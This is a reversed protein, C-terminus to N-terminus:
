VILKMKENIMERPYFVLPRFVPLPIKEDAKKFNQLKTDAKVLAQVAMDKKEILEQLDELETFRFRRWNNWKRLKNITSVIKKSKRKVVPFFNCGRKMILWAALPELSKGEFLVAVNGECGLPLGGVGKIEELYIFSEGERVEVFVEKEPKTLDVKLGKINELVTSGIAENLDRRNFSHQGTVNARIAFSNSGKLHRKAALVAEGIIKERETSTIRKALAFSHIGFIYPLIKTVKGLNSTKNPYIFLRGGKKSMRTGSLGKARLASKINKVLKLMFYKRVFHTKLSIEPATKVLLCNPQLMSINLSFLYNIIIPTLITKIIYYHGKIKEDRQKEGWGM